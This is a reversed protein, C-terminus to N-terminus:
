YIWVTQGTASASDADEAMRAEYVAPERVGAVPAEAVLLAAPTTPVGAGIPM